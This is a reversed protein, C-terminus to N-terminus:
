QIPRNQENIHDILKKLEGPVVEIFNRHTETFFRQRVQALSLKNRIAYNQIYNTVKKNWWEKIDKETIM